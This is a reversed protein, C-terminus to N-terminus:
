ARRLLHQKSNAPKLVLETATLAKGEAKKTSRTRNTLEWLDQEGTLHAIIRLDEFDAAAPLQHQREFLGAWISDLYIRKREGLQDLIRAGGSMVYRVRHDEGVVALPMNSRITAPESYAVVVHEGIRQLATANLRIRAGDVVDFEVGSSTRSRSISRGAPASLALNVASWAEERTCDGIDERGEPVTVLVVPAVDGIQYRETILQERVRRAETAADPDLAVVIPRGDAIELLLQRQQQSPKKGLIAVADHGLRWVDTPGEVLVVPGSGDHVRTLGYLLRSKHTGASTLYRPTSTPSIARAQWGVLRQGHTGAAETPELDFFPIIIRQWLRPKSDEDSECYSLNWRSSLEDVHFGRQELYRRAPHGTPLEALPTCNAPLEIRTPPSPTISAPMPTTNARAQPPGGLPFLKAHLSQQRSRSDVCHENHCCVLHWLRQGTREDTTAWFHSFSLRRRTDHCFPCNAYYHEGEDVKVTLRPSGRQRTWSYSVRAPEGPNTIHVDGFRRVLANYLSPNLPSMIQERCSETNTHM